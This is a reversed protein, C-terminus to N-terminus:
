LFKIYKDHKRYYLYIVSIPIPVNKAELRSFNTKLQNEQQQIYLVPQPKIKPTM